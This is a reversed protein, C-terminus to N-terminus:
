TAPLTGPAVDRSGISVASDDFRHWVPVGQIDALGFGRNELTAGMKVADFDGGLLLGIGPPDGFELSRDVDLLWEFGVVDAMQGASVFVYTLAEPGAAIRGLIPGLPVANMLLDVSGLARLLALGESEFLAEYDVFRITAWGSEIFAAESPVYSLMAQLQFVTPDDQASLGASIAAAVLIGTVLGRVITRVYVEKREQLLSSASGLSAM